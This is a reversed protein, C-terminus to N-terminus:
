DHRVPHQQQVAVECHHHPMARRHRLPTLSIVVELLLIGVELREHLYTLLRLVDLQNYTTLTSAQKSILWDILKLCGSTIPPADSIYACTFTALLVLWTTLM